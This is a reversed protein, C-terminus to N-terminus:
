RSLLLMIALLLWLVLNAILLARIPRPAFPAPWRRRSGNWNREASLRLALLQRAQRLDPSDPYRAELAALGSAAERWRGEQMLLLVEKFSPDAGISAPPFTAASQDGGAGSLLEEDAESGEAPVPPPSGGADDGVPYAVMGEGTLEEM